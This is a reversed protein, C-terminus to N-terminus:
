GATAAAGGLRTLLRATAGIGDEARCQRAVQEARARYAAAGPPDTLAGILGALRQGTLRRVPLPAPGVGLAHLRAGHYPQDVVFPVTAAPVGALLGAFSTGSGGHHVLAALQPFLWSHPVEGITLVRDDVPGPPTGPLAPTVVRRGSRRAADLVADLRHYGRVAARVTHRSPPRPRGDLSRGDM